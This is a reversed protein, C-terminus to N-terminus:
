SSLRRPVFPYELWVDCYLGTESSASTSATSAASVPYMQNIRVAATGPLSSAAQSTTLGILGVAPSSVSTAAAVVGTSTVLSSGGVLKAHSYYGKIIAWAWQDSTANEVVIGVSGSHASTLVSATYLGDRSIAVTAGPVITATCDVLIYEYGNADFARAGPVAVKPLDAAPGFLGLTSDRILALEDPSGIFFTTGTKHALAYTGDYGRRVVVRGSVPVSRVQMIEKRFVLLDGAAINATSAVNFENDSDNLAASLTSTPLYTIAM